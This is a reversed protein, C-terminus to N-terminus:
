SLLGLRAFVKQRLRAVPSLPRPVRFHATTRPLHHTNFWKELYTKLDEVAQDFSATGYFEEQAYGSYLISDTFDEIIDEGVVDMVTPSKIPAVYICDAKPKKLFGSQAASTRTEFEGFFSVNDFSYAFSM